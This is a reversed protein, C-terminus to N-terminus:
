EEEATYNKAECERIKNEIVSGKDAFGNEKARALMERARDTEGFLAYTYALNASVYPHEPKLVYAKELAEQAKENEGINLYATGLNNYAMYFEPDAAISDLYTAAARDFDKNLEYCRGLLYQNEASPNLSVLKQAAQIASNFDKRNALKEVQARASEEPTKGTIKGAIWKCLFAVPVAIAVALLLKLYPNM